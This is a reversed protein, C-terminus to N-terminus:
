KEGTWSFKYDSLVLKRRKAIALTNPDWSLPRFNQFNMLFISNQGLFFLGLRLKLTYIISSQEPKIQYHNGDPDQTEWRCHCATGGTPPQPCGLVPNM